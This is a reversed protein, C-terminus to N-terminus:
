PDHQWQNIFHSPHNVHSIPSGKTNAVKKCQKRVIHKYSQGIIDTSLVKQALIMARRHNGHIGEHVDKM